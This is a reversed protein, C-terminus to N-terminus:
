AGRWQPTSTYSWANKVEASSSPSHDAERGPWKVRLSLAGPVWCHIDRLLARTAVSQENDSWSSISIEKVYTSVTDNCLVVFMLQLRNQM